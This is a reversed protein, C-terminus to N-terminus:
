GYRRNYTSSSVRTWPPRTTPCSPRRAWPWGPRPRSCLALGCLEPDDILEWLLATTAKGPRVGLVVDYPQDCFGCFGEARMTYPSHAQTLLQRLSCGEITQVRDAFKSACIAAVVGQEAEVRTRPLPKQGVGSVVVSALHTHQAQLLGRGSLTYASPHGPQTPQLQLRRIGYPGLRARGAAGLRSTGPQSGPSLPPADKRKNAATM